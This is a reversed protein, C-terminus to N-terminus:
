AENKKNIIDGVTSAIKEVTRGGVYGGIGIKIISWLELEVDLPIPVSLGFWRTVVLGTFVVMLLPRWNSTLWSESSAEATVIRAQAEVVRSEYDLVKSYLGVQVELLKQKLTLREEDTVVLDDVLKVLPDLVVGLIGLIPIAMIGRIEEPESFRV